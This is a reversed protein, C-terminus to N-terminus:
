KGESSKGEGSSVQRRVTAILNDSLYFNTRRLQALAVEFDLLRARHAEALVELTGTVSLYRRQAEARGAQEDILLRDADVSFTLAIAAREGADLFSPAPDFPPDPRIECWQPPQAIWQRVIAPAHADQRDHV